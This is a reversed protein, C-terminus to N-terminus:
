SRTSSRAIAYTVGAALTPLSVMQVASSQASLPLSSLAAALEPRMGTVVLEAGLLRVASTARILMQSLEADFSRVGTIDIIVSRARHNVLASLLAVLVNNARTADIRGILPLALVRDAIPMIPTELERIAADKEVLLQAQLALREQKEQVLERATQQYARQEAVRDSIDRVHMLLETEGYPALLVECTMTYAPEALLELDVVIAPVPRGTRLLPLSLTLQERLAEKFIDDIRTGQRLRDILPQPASKGFRVDVMEGSERLRILVGPLADLVARGYLDANRISAAFEEDSTFEVAACSGVPQGLEDRLIAAFMRAWLWRGESHRYRKMIQINPLHGAFLEAFLKREGPIDDPHSLDLVNLGRLDSEAYGLWGAFTRNVETLYGQTDTIGVGLPLSEIFARFRNLVLELSSCKLTLAALEAQLAEASYARPHVHGGHHRDHM